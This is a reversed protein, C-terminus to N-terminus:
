GFLLRAAVYATPGAVALPVLVAIARLAAVRRMGTSALVVGAEVLLGAAAVAAAIVAGDAATLDDTGGAIAAGVATAAGLGVLVGPWGRAAGGEAADVLAPRPLVRDVARALLVAVGAAAIAVNVVGTSAGGVRLAVLVAPAVGFIVGAVTATLSATVDPRGDRRSLQHVLAALVGVAIVGAFRRMGGDGTAAVGDAVAAAGLGIAAGRVRSPAALAALVTVVLMAQLPAVAFALVVRGAWSALLLYGALVATAAAVGVGLRRVPRQRSRRAAPAAEVMRPDECQGIGGTPSQADRRGTRSLQPYGQACPDARHLRARSGGPPEHPDKNTGPASAGRRLSTQAHRAQEQERVRELGGTLDKGCEGQEPMDDPDGRELRAREDIRRNNVGNEDVGPPVEDMGPREAAEQTRGTCVCREDRDDGLATEDRHRRFPADVIEDEVGGTGALDFRSEAQSDTPQCRRGLDVVGAADDARAVERDVLLGVGGPQAPFCEVERELLELEELEKGLVRSPHEGAGLQQLLHPAVVVVAAGAGDVDVDTTQAGLETDLVLREDARHAVDAVLEDCLRDVRQGVLLRNCGVDCRSTPRDSRFPRASACPSM